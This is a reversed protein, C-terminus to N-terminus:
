DQDTMQLLDALLVLGVVLFEGDKLLLSGVPLTLKFLGFPV